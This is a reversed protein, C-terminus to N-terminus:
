ALVYAAQIDLAAKAAAVWANQIPEPLEAWLPMPNGQYNKFGVSKGYAEYAIKAVAVINLM